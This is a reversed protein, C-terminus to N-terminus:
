GFRSHWDAREHAETMSAPTSCYAPPLRGYSPRANRVLNTNLGAYGRSACDWTGPAEPPIASPPAALVTEVTVDPM